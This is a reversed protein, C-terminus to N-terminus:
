IVAPEEDGTSPETHCVNPSQEAIFVNELMALIDKIMDTM